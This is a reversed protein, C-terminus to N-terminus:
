KALIWGGASPHGYELTLEGVIISDISDATKPLREAFPRDLWAKKFQTRDFAIVYALAASGISEPIDRSLHVELIGFDSEYISVMERRKVSDADLFKTSNTTFESIRRKMKGGVLLDKPDAGLSWLAQQLDKLSTENFTASSATDNLSPVSTASSASLSYILGNMRRAANSANGSALSGRILAHEIDTKYEEMRKRAQDSHQDTIGGYRSSSQSSRTVRVMKDFIQTINFLRSATIAAPFTTYSKGEVQANDSRYTLASQLWQHYPQLVGGEGIMTYFPTDNPKLMSIFDSVDERLLTGQDAYHNGVAM